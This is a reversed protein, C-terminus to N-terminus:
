RGYIPEAGEQNIIVIRDFGEKKTPPNERMTHEMRNIVHDPVPKDRTVNRKLCERGSVNIVHAEVVNYGLKRLNNVLIRRFKPNINTDSIVIDKGEKAAEQIRSLHLNTVKQEGTHDNVDGHIELRIDDRNINVMDRLEPDNKAYSTKGSGPCGVLVVAKEM